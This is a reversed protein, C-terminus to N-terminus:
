DRERGRARVVVSEHTLVEDSPICLSNAVDHKTICARARESLLVYLTGEPVVFDSGDWTGEPFSLGKLFRGPEGPRRVWPGHTYDLPGCRGTVSLGVFRSPLASSTMRIPYTSWGSLRDHRLADVLSQRILIVSPEETWVIDAVHGPESLSVNVLADMESGRTLLDVPDATSHVTPRGRFFRGEFSECLLYM